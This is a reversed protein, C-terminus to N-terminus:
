ATESALLQRKDLRRLVWKNAEAAISPILILPLITGWDRLTLSTTEFVPDLFPVYIIALLIVLSTLVAVQMWKNSFIGLAWL